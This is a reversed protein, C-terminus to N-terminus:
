NDLRLKAVPCLASDPRVKLAESIAEPTRKVVGKFAQAGNIKVTIEKDLNVLADSLRLTIGKPVDGDLIIENGKAKAVIKHGAKASGPPIELWYFQDHTVDDQFWVIQDPWPNRAHKAMWPVAEADKGDMWHPLGKYIKVFHEYGKPDAKRLDALEREKAAAIKNRDYAADEGGMFLAFPLNRVGVLSAENPHGAMMAVAAFRDAMRPALQWVGDGGASYGMLYIRNPDVGRTAIMDAILRDFLPDIHGEHWLNWTNTPARPAVYIGEKPQYLKIQNQWQGDNMAAPGNGGGHMSIWLSRKGEPATGFEKELWRLTKDGLTISKAAVEAARETKLTALTEAAMQDRLKEAQARSLSGDAPAAWATAVSLLVLLMRM